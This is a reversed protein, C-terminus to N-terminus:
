LAHRRAAQADYFDLFASFSIYHQHQGGPSLLGCCVISVFHPNASSPARVERMWKM